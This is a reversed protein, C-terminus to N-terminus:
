GRRQRAAEFLIVAGAIAANLSELAGQMPITIAVSRARAESSPGHAENSVLLAAPARWDVNTYDLRTHADALYYNMTPPTLADVAQWTPCVRLPLRFHAAMGARVAKDNFPDVTEPAFIVGDCGAAEASRILTGANGPDNVGDLILLLSAHAPWALEPLPLIAAIGQPTTTESLTAFVAPTCPLCARGAAELEALLAKGDASVLVDPTFFVTAPQAGSRWADALLRVGEVLLQGAAYRGKRTALKRAERIRQNSSSTIM